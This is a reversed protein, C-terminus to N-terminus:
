KLIAVSVTSLLAFFAFIGLVACRIIKAIDRSNIYLDVSLFDVVDQMRSLPLAFLLPFSQLVRPVDEESM